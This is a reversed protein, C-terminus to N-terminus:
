NKAIGFVFVPNIINDSLITVYQKWGDRTVIPSVVYMKGIEYNTIDVGTSFNSLRTGTKAFNLNSIGISVSCNKGSFSVTGEVKGQINENNFNGPNYITNDRVGFITYGGTFSKELINKFLLQYIELYKKYDNNLLFDQRLQSVNQEIRITRDEIPQFDKKHTLRYFFYGILFAFIIPVLHILIWNMSKKLDSKPTKISDIKGKKDPKTRINKPPPKKRM